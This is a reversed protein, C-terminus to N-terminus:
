WERSKAFDPPPVPSPVPEGSCDMACSASPRWPTIKIARDRSRAIFPRIQKGGFVDRNLGRSVRRNLIGAGDKDPVVRWLGRSIIGGAGVMDQRRCAPRPKASAQTHHIEYFEDRHLLKRGLSQLRIAGAM